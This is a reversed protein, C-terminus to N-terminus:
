RYMTKAAQDGNTTMRLPVKRKDKYSEEGISPTFMGSCRNVMGQYKKKRKKKVGNM